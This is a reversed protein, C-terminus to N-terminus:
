NDFVEVKYKVGHMLGPVMIEGKHNTWVEGAFTLTKEPGLYAWLHVKTPEDLDDGDNNLLKTKLTFPLSIDGDQEKYKFKYRGPLTDPTEFVRNEDTRGYYADFWDSDDIKANVKIRMEGDRQSVSSDDRDSLEFKAELNEPFPPVRLWGEDDTELKAQFTKEGTVPHIYYVDFTTNDKIERGDLDLMRLKMAVYQTESTRDRDYFKYKYWGPLVDKVELVGTYDTRKTLTRFWEGGQETYVKVKLSKVNTGSFAQSIMPFVLLGGLFLFALQYFRKKM